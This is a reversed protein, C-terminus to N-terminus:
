ILFTSNTLYLPISQHIPPSTDFYFKGTSNPASLAEGPENLSIVAVIQINDVFSQQSALFNDKVSANITKVSCCNMSITKCMSDMIGDQMCSDEEQMQQSMEM